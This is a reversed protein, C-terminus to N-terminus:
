FTSGAGCTKKGFAVVCKQGFGCDADSNCSPTSTTTTTVFNSMDYGEFANTGTTGSYTTRGPIPPDGSSPPTAFGTAVALITFLLAIVKMQACPPYLM